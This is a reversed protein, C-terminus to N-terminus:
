PGKESGGKDAKALLRYFPPFCSDLAKAELKAPGLLYSPLCQKAETTQLVCTRLHKRMGKFASDNRMTKYGQLLQLCVEKVERSPRNHAFVPEVEVHNSPKKLYRYTVERCKCFPCALLWPGEAPQPDLDPCVNTTHHDWYHRVREALKHVLNDAGVRQVAPHQTLVAPWKLMVEKPPASSEEHSLDRWNRDDWDLGGDDPVSGPRQWSREEDKMLDEEGGPGWGFRQCWMGVNRQESHWYSPGHNVKFVAGPPGHQFGKYTDVEGEVAPPPLFFKARFEGGLIRYDFCGRRNCLFCFELPKKRSMTFMCEKCVDVECWRGRHLTKNPVSNICVMCDQEEEYVAESFDPVQVPLFCNNRGQRDKAKPCIRLDPTARLSMSFLCPDCVVAGCVAVNLLDPQLMQFCALCHGLNNSKLAVCILHRPPEELSATSQDRKLSPSARSPDGDETGPSGTGPQKKPTGVHSKGEREDQLALLRRENVLKAERWVARPPPGFIQRAVPSPTPIRASAAAAAEQEFSSM